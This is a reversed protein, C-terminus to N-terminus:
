RGQAAVRRAVEGAVDQRNDDYRLLTRVDVHRSYRQARRVDGGLVDLATSIGLHRLGHPWTRIGATRGLTVVVRYVAKGTLRGSGKRARDFSTFLPGPPPAPAQAEAGQPGVDGLQGGGPGATPASGPAGAPRVALWAELAERTPAPLTLRAKQRKGKGLVQLVGAARDFDGVDLRCVEARRLALDHLLRLVALDRLGKADTRARAAQLMRNFAKRGPGATDRYAEAKVGPVEVSWPVLGLMKALAVLSRVAALRRNVTAPSLGQELMRNRFALVRANANGHGGALLLRAAAAPGDAGVFAAFAELDQRYARTTEASRGALFAALLQEAPSAGPLVDGAIAPPVPVLAGATPPPSAPSALPDTIM